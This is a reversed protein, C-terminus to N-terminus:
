PEANYDETVLRRVTDNEHHELERPTGIAAL